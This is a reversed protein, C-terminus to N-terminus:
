GLCLSLDPAASCFSERRRGRLSVCVDNSLGEEAKVESEKPSKSKLQVQETSM